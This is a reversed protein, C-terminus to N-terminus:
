HIYNWKELFFSSIALATIGISLSFFIGFHFVGILIFAITTPILLIVIMGLINIPKNKFFKFLIAITLFKIFILYGFLSFILPEYLLVEKNWFLNEKIGSYIFIGLGFLSCLILFIILKKMTNMKKIENEIFEILESDKIRNKLKSRNTKKLLPILEFFCHKLGERLSDFMEENFTLLERGFLIKKESDFIIGKEFLIFSTNVKAKDYAFKVILTKDFM